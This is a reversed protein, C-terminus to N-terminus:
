LTPRRNTGYGFVRLAGDSNKKVHHESVPYRAPVFVAEPPENDAAVNRLFEPRDHLRQQIMYMDRVLEREISLVDSDAILALGKTAAPTM